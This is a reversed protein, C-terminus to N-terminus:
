EKIKGCIIGCAIVTQMVTKPPTPHIQTSNARGSMVAGTFDLQADVIALLSLQTVPM